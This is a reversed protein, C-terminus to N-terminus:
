IVQSVVGRYSGKSVMGLIANPKDELKTLHTLRSVKHRAFLSEFVGSLRWRPRAEVTSSSRRWPVGIDPVDGFELQDVIVSGLRVSGISPVTAFLNRGRKSFALLECNLRRM